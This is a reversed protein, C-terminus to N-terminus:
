TAPSATSPSAKRSCTASTSCCGGRCRSCASCASCGRRARSPRAPVPGSSRWAHRQGALSPYDLALPSGLWRCSARCSARAAACRRPRAWASSCRAATPSTSSSTWCRARRASAARRAGDAGGARGLQRQRQAAGRAHEPRAPQAAMRAGRRPGRRRRPQGGRDRRPRAAQRAARLRRHRHRARARRRAAAPRAPERGRRRREQAAVAAGAARLRARGGAGRRAPGAPVRRLRRVARGRRQRALRRRGALRRRRRPQVPARRDAAVARAARDTGPLYGSVERAPAAGAGGPAPATSCGAPCRRGPMSTAASALTANAHVGTAPTPAPEDIGIGGRLVRPADGSLDRVYQAQLVSGLEFRLTDRARSAPRLSEPVLTRRTACRCRRRPRRACRRRCTPAGPRRPQQDASRPCARARLRPQRPLRDARHLSSALRALPGLEGARRLGEASAMGQGSFRLTGDPQM